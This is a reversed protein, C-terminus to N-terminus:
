SCDWIRRLTLAMTQLARNPHNQALSIYERFPATHIKVGFGEARAFVPIVASLFHVFAELVLESNVGIRAKWAVEILLKYDLRFSALFEGPVKRGHETSAEHDYLLAFSEYLQLLYRFVHEAESDLSPLIMRIHSFATMFPERFPLVVTALEQLPSLDEGHRVFLLYAVMMLIYKLHEGTNSFNQLLGYAFELFTPIVPLFERQRRFVAHVVLVCGGRILTPNATFLVASALEIASGIYPDLHPGELLFLMGIAAILDQNDSDISAAHFLCQACADFSLNVNRGFSRIVQAIVM